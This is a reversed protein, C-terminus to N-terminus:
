AETRLNMASLGRLYADHAAANLTPARAPRWHFTVLEPLARQIILKAIRDQAKFVSDVDETTPTEGCNLNTRPASSIRRSGSEDARRGCAATSCMRSALSRASGDSPTM